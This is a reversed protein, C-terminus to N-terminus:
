GGGHRHGVGERGQGLLHPPVEHAVPQAIVEGLDHSSEADRVLRREDDGGSELTRPERDQAILLGGGIERAMLVGVTLAQHVHLGHLVGILGVLGLGMAGVLASDVCRRGGM